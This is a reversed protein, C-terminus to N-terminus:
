SHGLDTTGLAIIINLMAEVRQELPLGRENMIKEFDVADVGLSVIEAAQILQPRGEDEAVRYLYLDSDRVEYQLEICRLGAAFRSRYYLNHIVESDSVLHVSEFCPQKLVRHLVGQFEAGPYFEEPKSRKSRKRSM